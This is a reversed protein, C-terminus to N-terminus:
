FKDVGRTRAVTRLIGLLRNFDKLIGLYYYGALFGLEVKIECAGCVYQGMLNLSNSNVSPRAAQFFVLVFLTQVQM